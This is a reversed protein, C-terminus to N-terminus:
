SSNRLFMYAADNPSRSGSVAATAQGARQAASSARRYMSCRRDWAQHVADIRIFGPRGQGPRPRATISGACNTSSSQGRTTCIRSRFPPWAGMARSALATSPASCCCGPPQAPSRASCPQRARRARQRRPHVQACLVDHHSPLAAGPTRQAPVACDVPQAAPAFLGDGAASLPPDLRPPAKSQLPYKFRKLVSKIHGYRAVADAMPTLRLDVAGALIGRLQELTVLQVESIDIVQQSTRDCFRM